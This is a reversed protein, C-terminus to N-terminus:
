CPDRRSGSRLLQFPTLLKRFLFKSISDPDPLFCDPAFCELQVGSVVHFLFFEQEPSVYANAISCGTDNHFHTEIDCAPVCILETESSIEPSRVFLV